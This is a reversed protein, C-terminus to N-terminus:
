GNEGGQPAPPANNGQQLGAMGAQVSSPAGQSHAMLEEPSPMGLGPNILQMQAQIHEERFRAFGMRIPQSLAKYKDTKRYTNLSKVYMIHNDMEDFPPTIGRELM